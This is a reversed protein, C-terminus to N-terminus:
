PVYQEVVMVVKGEVRYFTFLRQYANVVEEFADITHMSQLQVGELIFYSANLDVPVTGMEKEEITFGNPSAQGIKEGFRVTMTIADDNTHVEQVFGQQIEFSPVHSLLTELMQVKTNLEQYVENEYSTNNELLTYLEKIQQDNEELKDNLTALQEELKDNAVTQQVPEVKACGVLLIIGLGIYIFSTRRM